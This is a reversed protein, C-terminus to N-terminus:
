VQVAELGRENQHSKNLTSCAWWSIGLEDEFWVTNPSLYARMGNIVGRITLEKTARV